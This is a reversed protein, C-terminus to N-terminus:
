KLKWLYFYERNAITDTHLEKFKTEDNAFSENTILVYWNNKYKQIVVNGAQNNTLKRESYRGYLDYNIHESPANGLLTLKPNLIKLFESSRNSKRGHHPAVLVDVNKILDILNNKKLDNLIDEWVEDTADGSLLIKLDNDEILLVYSLLNWEKSKNAKNVLEKTPSLITIGDNKWCCESQAFRYLFLTKPNEKNNRIKQYFEWDEKDLNISFKTEQRNNETDWFNYVHFNSFLNKIGRLHDFEPHTLIFRFINRKSLLKELYDIPHEPNEKQNYNGSSEYVKEYNSQGKNIDIISVRGSSHEIISCDGNGVNLFHFRM